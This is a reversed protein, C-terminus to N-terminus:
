IQFCVGEDATVSTKLPSPESRFALPPEPKRVEQAWGEPRDRELLPASSITASESLLAILLM